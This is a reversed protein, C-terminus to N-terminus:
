PRPYVFIIRGRVDRVYAGCCKQSLSGSVLNEVETKKEDFLKEQTGSGWTLAKEFIAEFEPFIISLTPQVATDNVGSHLYSVAIVKCRM